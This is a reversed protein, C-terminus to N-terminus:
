LLNMRRDEIQEYREAALETAQRQQEHSLKLQLSKVLKMAPEDRQKAALLSWCYAHKASAPLGQGKLFMLGLYYQAKSHGLLAAQRFLGAAENFQKEAYHKLAETFVTKCHESLAPAQLMRPLLMGSDKVIANLLQQHELLKDELEALSLKKTAALHQRSTKFTM